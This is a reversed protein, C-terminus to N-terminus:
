RFYKERKVDLENIENGKRSLEKVNVIIFSERYVNETMLFRELKVAEDVKGDWQTNTIRQKLFYVETM